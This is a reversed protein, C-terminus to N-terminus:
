KAKSFRGRGSVPQGPRSKVYWDFNQRSCFQDLTGVMALVPRGSTGEAALETLRQRVLGPILITAVRIAIPQLIPNSVPHPPVKLNGSYIIWGYGVPPGVLIVAALAPKVEPHHTAAAAIISGYSYRVSWGWDRSPM